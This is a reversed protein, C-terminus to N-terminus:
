YASDPDLTKFSPKQAKLWLKAWYDLRPKPRWGQAVCADDLERVLRMLPKDQNLTEQEDRLRRWNMALWPAIPVNHKKALLLAQARVLPNAPDGKLVEDMVRDAGYEVYKRNVMWDAEEAVEAEAKAERARARHARVAALARSEAEAGRLAHLRKAEPEGHAVLNKAFALAAAADLTGRGLKERGLFRQFETLEKTEDWPRASSLLAARAQAATLSPVAQKLLAATAAAVPSALSTGSKARGDNMTVDGICSLTADAVADSRPNNTYTSRKGRPTVATVFLVNAPVGTGEWGGVWSTPASLNLVGDHRTHAQYQDVGQEIAVGDNGAAFVFLANPSSEVIHRVGDGGGWGWQMMSLNVVFADWPARGVFRDYSLASLAAQPAVDRFVELVLAGHACDRACEAGPLDSPRVGDVEVLLCRVGSGTLGAEHLALTGHFRVPGVNAFVAAERAAKDKPPLAAVAAARESPSADRVGFRAVSM